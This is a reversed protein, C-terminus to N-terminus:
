NCVNHRNACLGHTGYRCEIAPITLFNANHNLLPERGEKCRKVLSM